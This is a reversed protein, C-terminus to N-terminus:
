DTKPPTPVSKEPPLGGTEALTPNRPRHDRKLRKRRRRYPISSDGENPAEMAEGPGDDPDGEDVAEASRSTSSSPSTSPARRRKSGSGSWNSNRNKESSKRLYKAGLFLVLALLLALAVVLLMDGMWVGVTSTGSSTASPLFDLAALWPHNM